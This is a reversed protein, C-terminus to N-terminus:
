KLAQLKEQLELIEKKQSEMKEKFLQLRLYASDLEDIYARRNTDARTRLRAIEERSSDLRLMASDLSTMARDMRDLVLVLEQDMAKLEERAEKLRSNTFLLSYGLYILGMFVILPLVTRLATKM